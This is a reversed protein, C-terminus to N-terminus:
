IKSNSLCNQPGKQNRDRGTASGRGCPEMGLYHQSPPHRGPTCVPRHTCPPGGSIGLPVWGSGEPCLFQPAAQFLNRGTEKQAWLQDHVVSSCVFYSWSLAPRGPTHVHRHACTLGGSRCLPVQRLGEPCLFWPAAQLLIKGTEMQM